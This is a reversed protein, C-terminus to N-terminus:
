LWRCSNKLIVLYFLDLQFPSSFLASGQQQNIIIIKKTFNTTTASTNKTSIQIQSLIEFLLSIFLFLPSISFHLFYIAM